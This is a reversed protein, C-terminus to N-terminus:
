AKNTGDLKASLKYLTSASCDAFMKAITEVSGNLLPTVKSVTDKDIKRSAEFIGQSGLQTAFAIQNLLPEIAVLQKVEDKTASPLYVTRIADKRLLHPSVLHLIRRGLVCYHNSTWLVPPHLRLLLLASDRTLIGASSEPHYPPCCYDVDAYPLDGVPMLNIDDFDVVKSEFKLEGAM